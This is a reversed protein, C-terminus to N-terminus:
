QFNIVPLKIKFITGKNYISEVEINGGFNKIIGYSVSLGLGTGKGVEKTTFFPMFIKDIDEESIGNGSDAISITIVDDHYSTAIIIEGPPTIADVANNIINILVQRLQNKDTTLDPLDDKLDLKMSINSVSLTREFFGEVLDNIIDNINHQKLEIDDQRVFSLLKRTIDRCRFAADHINALHPEISDFGSDLGFEPNMIDKILGVESAVIALPNNIEHAIGGALEGVSALKSAHELQSRTIKKEIEMNAIKISRSYIVAFLILLIAASLYILGSKMGRFGEDSVRKRAIVAWKVEDLWAYAYTISNDDYVAKSIDLKSGADPIFPSSDLVNGEDSPVLQFHGDKNVISIFMDGAEEASTMFEYIKKPDLSSKMVMFHDGERRKVAITLHPNNRFGLYIDTFIHRKDNKLLSVYWPEKSYDKKKLLEVPGAYAIQVGDSDFFGVDIFADSDLQLKNLYQDMDRNSPPIQLSPDDILNRLNVIREKLFLDLLNSQNEAMAKMRLIQSEHNLSNFEILFFIILIVFPLLYTCSLRLLLGRRLERFQKDRLIDNKYLKEEMNRTDCTKFNKSRKMM